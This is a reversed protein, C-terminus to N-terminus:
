DLLTAQGQGKVGVVQFGVHHVTSYEGKIFHHLQCLGTLGVHNEASASGESYVACIIM